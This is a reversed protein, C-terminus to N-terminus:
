DPNELRRYMRQVEVLSPKREPFATDSLDIADAVDEAAAGAAHQEATRAWLVRYYDQSKEISGLDALPPGHGPVVLDFDLAKLNELTEPWEDVYGDGLFSPGGFLMDGTFVLRDQPFYVVVDGGTHARGVFLIRIERSGRFLTMKENMTVDPPLPAIEDFDEAHAALMSRYTELEEREEDSEAAEIQEALRELTAANGELGQLYTPEDLPATAMKMRTYEHGIIPVDAFEQNGHAHDWHFHSNILATVPKDTVATISDILDRARAPTVHSDVVVVDEDNVIVLSNSNFVRATTQTLWIGNRVEMFRHTDTTTTWDQAWLSGAAFLTVAVSAARIALRLTTLQLAHRM